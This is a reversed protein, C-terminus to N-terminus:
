RCALRSRAAARVREATAASANLAGNMEDDTRNFVQHWWRVEGLRPFVLRERGKTHDDIVPDYQDNTFEPRRSLFYAWVSRTREALKAEHRQRENNCLFTGYQCSYVHYLL